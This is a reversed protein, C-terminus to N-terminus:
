KTDPLKKSWTVYVSYFSSGKKVQVLWVANKDGSQMGKFIAAGLSSIYQPDDNPPTNEDFTDSCFTVLNIMDYFKRFYDRNIYVLSSYM